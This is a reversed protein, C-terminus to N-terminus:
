LVQSSISKFGVMYELPLCLNNALLVLSELFLDEIMVFDFDTELLKIYEHLKIKTELDERSIGLDLM